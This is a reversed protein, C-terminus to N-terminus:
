ARTLNHSSPFHRILFGDIIKPEIWTSTPPLKWGSDVIRLFNAMRVNPVFVVATGGDYLDFIKCSDTIDLNGPISFVRDEAIGLADRIIDEMVVDYIPITSDSHKPTIGYVDMTNLVFLIERDPTHSTFTSGPARSLLIDKAQETIPRVIFNHSLRETWNSQLPGMIVRHFSKLVVSDIDTIAVMIGANLKHPRKNFMLFRHNGDSVYLKKVSAMENKIYAIDAPSSIKWLRYNAGDVTIMTDPSGTVVRGAIEEASRADKYFTLIPNVQMKYKEFIRRYTDLKESHAEETQCFIMRDDYEIEGIILTIERTGVNSKIVYLSSTVDIKAAGNSVQLRIFEM